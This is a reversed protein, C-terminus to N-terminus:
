TTKNSLTLYHAYATREGCLKWNQNPTKDTGETAKCLSLYKSFFPAYYVRGDHSKKM